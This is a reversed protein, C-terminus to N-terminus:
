GGETSPVARRAPNDVPWEESRESFVWWGLEGDAGILKSCSKTKILRCRPAFANQFHSSSSSILGTIGQTAKLGTLIIKHQKTSLEGALGLGNPQYILRVPKYKCSESDRVANLWSMRKAFESRLISRRLPEWARSAKKPRGVKRDVWGLGALAAM